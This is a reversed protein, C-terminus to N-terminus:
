AVGKTSVGRGPLPKSAEGLSAGLAKFCAEALHHPDEGWIRKVHLTFLGHLSASRLFHELLGGELDEVLRGGLGLEIRHYPRKVLDVSVLVLADDMPIASHGFRRIGQRDGLATSLAEGFAIGTDEVVHHAMDGEAEVRLSFSGHHAMTELMHTFFRYPTRVSYGQEDLGLEVSIRVERTERRSLGRRGM